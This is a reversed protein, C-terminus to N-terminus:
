LKIGQDELEKILAAIEEPNMDDLKVKIKSKKRTRPKPRSKSLRAARLDEIHKRLDEDSMESVSKKLNDLTPM